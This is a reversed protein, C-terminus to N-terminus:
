QKEGTLYEYLEDLMTRVEFSMNSVVKNLTEVADVLEAPNKCLVSFVHESMDTKIKIKVKEM